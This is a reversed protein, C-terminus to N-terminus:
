NIKTITDYIRTHLHQQRWDSSAQYAEHAKGTFVVEELQYSGAKFYKVTITLKM